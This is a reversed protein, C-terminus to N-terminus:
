PAASRSPGAGLTQVMDEHPALSVQAADQGAVERVIVARASVERKLLVRGVAPGDLPRLEAPDELNGLDTAQMMSIDPPRCLRADAARRVAVMRPLPNRKKRGVAGDRWSIWRTEHRVSSWLLSVFGDESCGDV